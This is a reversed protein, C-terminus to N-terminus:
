MFIRNLESRDIFKVLLLILMLLSGVFIVVTVAVNVIESSGISIIYIHASKERSIM